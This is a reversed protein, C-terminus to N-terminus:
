LSVVFLGLRDKEVMALVEFSFLTVCTGRVCVTMICLGRRGYGTGVFRGCVCSEDVVAWVFGCDCILGWYM